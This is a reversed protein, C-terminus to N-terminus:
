GLSIQLLFGYSVEVKSLFKLFMHFGDEGGTEWRPEGCKGLHKIFCEQGGPLQKTPRSSVPVLGWGFWAGWGGL